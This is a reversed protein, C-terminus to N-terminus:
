YMMGKCVISEAWPVKTAARTGSDMTCEKQQSNGVIIQAVSAMVGDDKIIIGLCSKIPDDRGEAQHGCFLQAHGLRGGFTHKSGNFTHAEEDSCCM